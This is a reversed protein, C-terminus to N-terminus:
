RGLSKKSLVGVYLGNWWTNATNHPWGGLLQWEKHVSVPMKYLASRTGQKVESYDWDDVIFIFYDAMHDLYYTLAMEQDIPRHDGDYFYVTIDKIQAKQEPTLNFCDQNIFQFDKGEELGSNKCNTLLQSQDADFQSFNDIAVALQPSNRYLASVLTSGRWTGIELYRTNPNKVLENLFIRNKRSSMGELTLEKETLQTQGQEALTIATEVQSILKEILQTDM